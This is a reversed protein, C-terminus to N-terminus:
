PSIFLIKLLAMGPRKKRIKTKEICNVTFFYIDSIFTHLHSSQFPLCRADSTVARGVSGCGSGLLFNKITLKERKDQKNTKEFPGNGAEKENTEEKWNLKFDVTHGSKVFNQWKKTNPLRKSRSQCININQPLHKHQLRGFM